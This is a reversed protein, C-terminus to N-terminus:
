ATGLVDSLAADSHITNSSFLSAFPVAAASPSTPTSAELSAGAPPPLVTGFRTALTNFDLANVQGDHNFDGDGFSMGSKNFNFALTDFDLSDVHRDRNADGNLVFFPLQYNDGAVGDGNGDLHNYGLDCIGNSDLTMLYNGDPMPSDYGIWGRTTDGNSYFDPQPLTHALSQNYFSFDSTGIDLMQESFSVAVGAGVNYDYYASTVTPPNSDIPADVSLTYNWNIDGAYGYIRILYHEGKVVSLNVTENDTRSDSSGVMAGKSNYVVMDLDGDSNAFDIQINAPGSAQAVFRYFDSNEATHINLNDWTRLGCNVLDFPNSPSDNVELADPAVSPGSLTLTYDPNTASNVGYV